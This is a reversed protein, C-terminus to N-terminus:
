VGGNTDVGSPKQYKAAENRIKELALTLETQLSVYKDRLDYYDARWKDVDDELKDIEDRQSKIEMRLEDRIRSGDDLKIKGRGLWHSTVALGVGGFLTGLLAPWAPDISMGYM